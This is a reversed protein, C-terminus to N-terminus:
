SQQFADDIVDGQVRRRCCGVHDNFRDTSNEDSSTGYSFGICGASAYSMTHGSIRGIDVEPYPDVEGPEATIEDIASTFESGPIKIFTRYFIYNKGDGKHEAYYSDVLLFTLMSSKELPEPLTFPISHLVGSQFSIIGLCVFSIRALKSVTKARIM